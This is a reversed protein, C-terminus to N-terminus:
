FDEDWFPHSGETNLKLKAAAVNAHSFREIIIEIKALVENFNKAYHRKDISFIRGERLRERFSLFNWVEDVSDIVAASDCSFCALLDACTLLGMKRKESKKSFASKLTPQKCYTGMPTNSKVGDDINLVPINYSDYLRKKIDSVSEQNLGSQAVTAISSAVDGLAKNNDLESGESYHKKVVASSSGSRKIAADVGNKHAISIETERIRQTTLSDLGPIENLIFNIIKGQKAFRKVQGNITTSFLLNESSINFHERVTIIDRIIDFGTKKIKLLDDIDTLTTNVEKEGGRVKRSTLHVWEGNQSEFEVDGVNIGKITTDTWASYRSILFYSVTMFMRLLDAKDKCPLNTSSNSIHGLEGSMLKKFTQKQISLLLKNLERYRQFDYGQVARSRPSPLENIRKEIRAPVSKEAIVFLRLVALARRRSGNSGPAKNKVANQLKQTYQDLKKISFFENDVFDFYGNLKSATSQFTDGSLEDFLERLSHLLLLKDTLQSIPKSLDINVWGNSRSFVTILHSGDTSFIFREKNEDSDMEFILDEKKTTQRNAKSKSKTSKAKKPKPLEVGLFGYFHKIKRIFIANLDTQSFQKLCELTFPVLEKKHCWQIHRKLHNFTNRKAADSRQTLYDYFRELYELMNPCVSGEIYESPAGHCVLLRLDFSCPAAQGSIDFQFKYKPDDLNM